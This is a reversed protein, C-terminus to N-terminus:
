AVGPAVGGCGIGSRTQKCSSEETELVSRMQSEQKKRHTDTLKSSAATANQEESNQAPGFEGETKKGCNLSTLTVSESLLVTSTFELLINSQDLVYM